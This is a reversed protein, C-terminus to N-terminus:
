PISIFKYLPCGCGGGGIQSLSATRGMTPSDSGSGPYNVVM